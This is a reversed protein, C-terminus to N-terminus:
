TVNIGGAPFTLKLAENTHSLPDKKTQKKMWKKQIPEYKIATHRRSACFLISSFTEVRSVTVWEDMIIM